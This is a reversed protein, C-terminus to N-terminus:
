LLFKSGVPHPCWGAAKERAAREGERSPQKHSLVDRDHTFSTCVPDVRPEAQWVAGAMHPNARFSGNRCWVILNRRSGKLIADAGHRQRGRHVVCRGVAHRYVLSLARHDAAGLAGCFTLTAGEFEKGLCANFTVDADDTHMDLLKDRGEEVDYAVIFAHQDSFGGGQLAELPFLASAIPQLVAATLASTFPALGVSRMIVGYRNMSNPRQVPIGKAAFFAEHAETVGLLAACAEASFLPFSYVWGAKEEQLLSLLAAGRDV